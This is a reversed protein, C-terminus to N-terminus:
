SPEDRQEDMKKRATYIVAVGGTLRRFAVDVFGAEEIMAAIEDPPPFVRISEALYRFPGDTGCILRAVLPMVRFSYFDYLVKEFKRPPLSFELILIRGGPELVRHMEALGAEPHVFNRLGFGLTIAGVSRDALAISEADGQLFAVSSRGPAGNFKVRGAAMMTRNFDYIIVHGNPSTEKVALRALDGTGGCLDLVVDGKQLGLLAVGKRRWLEDLGASLVADALDYTAAVSDFQERVLRKKEEPTVQRYGFLVKEARM